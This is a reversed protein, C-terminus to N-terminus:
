VPRTLLEQELLDQELRAQELRAERELLKNKRRESERIKLEIQDLEGGVATFPKIAKLVAVKLQTLNQGETVFFRGSNLAIRTPVDIVDFSLWGNTMTGDVVILADKGAAYEIRCSLNDCSQFEEDFHPNWILRQYGGMNHYTQLELARTLWPSLNDSDTFNVFFYRELPEPESPAVESAAVTWTLNVICIWIWVVCRVAM